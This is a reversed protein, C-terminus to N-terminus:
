LLDFINNWLSPLLFKSQCNSWKKQLISIFSRRSLGLILSFHFFLITTGEEKGLNAFLFM